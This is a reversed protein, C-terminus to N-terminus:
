RNRTLIEALRGRARSYQSRSTNESVGLMQGIERHSYGDVAYLNLITRYGPPLRDIAKLIDDAGMKEIVSAEASGTKALREETDAGELPNNRRLYGLATNVFIRRCWGEFSGEGRFEGIKTYLTIFGDHLLDQAAARDHVYRCIVGYM